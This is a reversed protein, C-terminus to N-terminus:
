ANQKRQAKAIRQWREIRQQEIILCERFVESKGITRKDATVLRITRM